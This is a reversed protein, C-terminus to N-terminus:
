KLMAELEEITKGALESDKKEDILSQIKERKQKEVIAQEKANIENQRTTFIYKVVEIQLNLKQNASSTSMLSDGDEEKLQKSLSKYIVDLDKLELDWLDEVSLTGKHIFRLKARTAKEFLNM